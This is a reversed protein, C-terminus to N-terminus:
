VKFQCRGAISLKEEYGSSAKLVDNAAIKIEHFFEDSFANAAERLINCPFLVLWNM